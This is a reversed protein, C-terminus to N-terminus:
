ESPPSALFPNSNGQAAKIRQDRAREWDDVPDGESWRVFVEMREPDVSVGYTQSMYMWIRAVDGQIADPPEAVDTVRDIEFNCAGYARPEGPVVGYPLNSRDGNLQGVAPLLNHLDAEM